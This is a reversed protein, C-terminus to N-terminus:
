GQSKGRGKQEKGGSAGEERCSGSVYPWGYKRQKGTRSGTGQRDGVLAPEKSASDKNTM